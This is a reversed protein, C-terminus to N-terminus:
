FVWIGKICISAWWSLLLNLVRIVLLMCFFRWFYLLRWCTLWFPIKRRLISRFKSIPLLLRWVLLCKVRLKLIARFSSLVVRGFLFVYVSWYHINRSLILIFHFPWLITLWLQSWIHNCIHRNIFYNGLSLVLSSENLIIEAKRVVWTRIFRLGALVLGQQTSNRNFWIFIFSLYITLLM